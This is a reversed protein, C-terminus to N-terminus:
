HVKGMNKKMNPMYVPTFPQYINPTFSTFFSICLFAVCLFIHKHLVFAQNVPMIVPLQVSLDRKTQYKSCNKTRLNTACHTTDWCLHGTCMACHTLKQPIPSGSINCPDTTYPLNWVPPCPDYTPSTVHCKGTVSFIPSPFTVPTDSPTHHAFPRRTWPKQIADCLWPSVRM